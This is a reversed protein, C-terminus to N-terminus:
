EDDMAETEEEGDGDAEASKWWLLPGLGQEAM